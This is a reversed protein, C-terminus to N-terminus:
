YLHHPIFPIPQDTEKKDTRRRSHSRRKEREKQYKAKMADRIKKMKDLQVPTLIERVDLLYNIYRVMSEGKMNGINKLSSEIQKRNSAKTKIAATVRLEQIKIDANQKICYEKYDLMLSEIKQIQKDTLNLRDRFQLLFYGSFLNFESMHMQLRIPNDYDPIEWFPIAASTSLTL